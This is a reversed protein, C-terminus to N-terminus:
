KSQNELEHIQDIRTKVSRLYELAEPRSGALLNTVLGARIDDVAIAAVLHPDKPSVEECAAELTPLASMWAPTVSVIRREIERIVVYGLNELIISLSGPDGVTTSLEERVKYGGEYTTPGNWDLHGERETGSEYVRLRLVHDSAVLFGTRDGYRLDILNGEFELKGGARDIAERTSRIDSVISKLEVELM